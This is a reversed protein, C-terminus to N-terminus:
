GAAPYGFRLLIGFNGFTCLRSAEGINCPRNRDNRRKVRTCIASGAFNDGVGGKVPALLFLFLVKRWGGPPEAL